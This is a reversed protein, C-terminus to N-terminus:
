SHRSKAGERRRGISLQGRIARRIICEMYEIRDIRPLGELKRLRNYRNLVKGEFEESHIRRRRYKSIKIFDGREIHLLEHVMICQVAQKRIEPCLRRLNMNVYITYNQRRKRMRSICGFYNEPMPAYSASINGDPNPFVKLAEKLWESCEDKM